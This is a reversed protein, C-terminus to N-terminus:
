RSLFKDLPKNMLRTFLKVVLGTCVAAILTGERTGLIKFDFFILSLIVSTIVCCIDFFIKVNGFEKHVADSLDKVFAEGSNMVVNAIVSLAIGFALVITGVIVCLLRVPYGDTNVFEVLRSGIDTFWGFLFSLPVQLLQIPEFSKRRIVVQGVILVCNWIFLWNGFSIATFKLSLINSVSSVPPIGLEGKKTIAIGLASIFLSVIFLAYRKFLEKKSMKESM